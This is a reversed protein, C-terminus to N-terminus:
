KVGLIAKTPPIIFDDLVHIVGNTCVIGGTRPSLDVKRSGTFGNVLFTANRDNVLHFSVMTTDGTAKYALSPYFTAFTKANYYSVTETVIHYQLFAKVKDIPYVNWSDPTLTKPGKTPDTASYNVNPVQNCAFYSGMVSPAVPFYTEDSLARNTLLLFTRDPKTYEDALGAYNVAEIMSSFLDKRSKMFDLATMNISNDRLGTEFKFDKQLDLGAIQCGTVFVVLFLVSAFILYKIKKM